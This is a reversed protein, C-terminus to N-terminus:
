KLVEYLQILRCALGALLTLGLAIVLQRDFNDYWDNMGVTELDRSCITRRRM